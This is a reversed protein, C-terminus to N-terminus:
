KKYVLTKSNASVSGDLFRAFEKQIQFGCQLHLGMSSLNENAVHSYIPLMGRDTCFNILERLLLKGYGKRRFYPGTELASLLYGDGYPELRAASIYSDNEALVCYVADKQRFFTYRLYEEFDREALRKQMMATEEPYLAAGQLETGEEYVALLKEFDMDNLSYFWFFM